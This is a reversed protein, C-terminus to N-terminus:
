VENELLLIRRELKENEEVFREIDIELKLMIHPDDIPTANYRLLLKVTALSIINNYCSYISAFHLPTWGCNDKANPDAGSRLLAEVTALSSTDNSHRSALHLPTYNYCAKVNPDANSRLLLEVTELSSDSNSYISALHLPTLGGNEKANPDAGNKLLFDVMDESSFTRSNRCAIHLATWGESNKANIEFLYHPANELDNKLVCLMLQTFDTAKTYPSCDFVEDYLRDEIKDIQMKNNILLLINFDNKCKM